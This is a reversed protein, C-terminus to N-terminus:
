SIVKKTEKIFSPLQSEINLGWRNKIAYADALSIAVLMNLEKEDIDLDFLESKSRGRELIDGILDHYVVLLCIKKIEYESLKEFDKKLIRKLKPIADAPHDPYAEQKGNQWKSKPGKGIDHLYASLEIINRDEESFIKYYKSKKLNEVVKLTHMGVNDDHVENDTELDYIDKMEDIICFDDEIKALADEIDTFLVNDDNREERQEIIKQVMDIFYHKLFYPGTVLTEKKRGEMRFKTFYFYRGSFPAYCINPQPIKSENFIKVAENKAIDNYVIIAEIWQIPVTDYVLVESMRRHREDDDSCGWGKTDIAKWDLKDLDCPNNFFNPPEKTNASADTFVVNDEMLKTIPVALYVILPQDINKRNLLGLLMPNITTFYFPVYDHVKGNPPCSVDMVSRRHQITESAINTHKIGLIDKRNTSLLGNQVISELNELHTFHFFYRDKHEIPIKM